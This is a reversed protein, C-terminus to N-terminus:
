FLVTRQQAEPSSLSNTETVVQTGASTQCGPSSACGDSWV